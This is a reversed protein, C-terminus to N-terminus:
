DYGTFIQRPGRLDSGHISAFFYFFSLQFLSSPVALPPELGQSERQARLKFNRSKQSEPTQSRALRRRHHLAASQLLLLAPSPCALTPLTLSAILARFLSVARPAGSLRSYALEKWAALPNRMEELLKGRETRDVEQRKQKPSKGSNRQKLTRPIIPICRVPLSFCPVLRSTLLKCSIRCIYGQNKTTLRFWKALPKPVFSTQVWQM